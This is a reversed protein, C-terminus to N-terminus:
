ACSLAGKRAVRKLIVICPRAVRERLKMAFTRFFICIAFSFKNKKNKRAISQSAVSKSFSRAFRFPVFLHAFNAYILASIM